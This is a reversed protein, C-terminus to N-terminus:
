TFGFCYIEKRGGDGWNKPEQTPGLHLGGSTPSQLGLGVSGPKAFGFGDRRTGLGARYGRLASPPATTGAPEPAALGRLCLRLPHGHGSASPL